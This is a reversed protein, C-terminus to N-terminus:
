QSRGSRDAVAYYKARNLVYKEVMVEIVIHPQVEALARDLGERQANERWLYEVHSFATSLFPVMASGFSDRVILARPLTRSDQQVVVSHRGPEDSTMVALNTQRRPTLRATQETLLGKLGLTAVLGLNDASTETVDYQDIHLPEIAPYQWAITDIIEAAASFAGLDSWHTDGKLYVPWAQGKAALLATRLDLVKVTTNEQLYRVLHEACTEKGDADYAAPLYEPYISWKDPAIVFLYAIGQAALMAQTQELQRGIHSFNRRSQDPLIGRHNVVPFGASSTGGTFFLWGDRGALVSKAGSINFWKYKTLNDLRILYDRFGFNDNFYEEFAAPYNTAGAVALSPRPTPTRNETIDAALELTPFRLGILPLFLALAFAVALIRNMLQTIKM